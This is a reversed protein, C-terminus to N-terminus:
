DIVSSATSIFAGMGRIVKAHQVVTEVVGDRAGDGLIPALSILGDPILLDRAPAFPKSVQSM